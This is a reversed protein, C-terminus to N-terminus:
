EVLATCSYCRMRLTHLIRKVVEKIEAAWRRNETAELQQCGNLRDRRVLNVLVSLFIANGGGGGGGGGPGGGGPGGPMPYAGGGGGGGGPGGPM